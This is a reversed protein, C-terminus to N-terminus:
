KSLGNAVAEAIRKDTFLFGSGAWGDPNWFEQYITNGVRRGICYHGDVGDAYNVLKVELRPKEFACVVCEQSHLYNRECFWSEAHTACLTIDKDM